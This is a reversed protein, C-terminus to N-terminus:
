RGIQLVFIHMCLCYVGVVQARWPVSIDSPGTHLSGSTLCDSLYISLYIYSIVYVRACM